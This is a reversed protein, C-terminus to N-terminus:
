TLVTAVSAKAVHTKLDDALIFIVTDSVGMVLSWFSIGYTYICINNTVTLVRFALWIRAVAGM